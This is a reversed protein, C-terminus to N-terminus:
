PKEECICKVRGCNFCTVLQECDGCLVNYKEPKGCHDCFSQPLTDEFTAHQEGDLEVDANIKGTVVMYRLQINNGNGLQNMLWGVCPLEQGVDSDHCAMIRLQKTLNIEGPRAITYKLRRHKEVDYGRPIDYPNTTV